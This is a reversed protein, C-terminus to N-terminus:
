MSPKKPKFKKKKVFVKDFAKRSKKKEYIPNPPGHIDCICNLKLIKTVNKLIFAPIIEGFFAFHRMKQSFGVQLIVAM